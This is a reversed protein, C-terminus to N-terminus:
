KAGGNAKIQLILGKVARLLRVAVAKPIEDFSAISRADPINGTEDGWKVLDDFTMGDKALMDSLKQQPTATDEPPTPAASAAPADAAASGPGRTENAGKDPPASNQRTPQELGPVEDEDEAEQQRRYDSWKADGDKLATYIARLDALERPTTQELPHGLYAELETPPVGLGGFSDTIKKVQARPDGGGKAKTERIAAEAEELIDQPILRLGSNRIVKSKAANLKVALEEDTCRVIFVKNGESTERSGIVEQGERVKRREITKALMVEDAYSLNSELDTVTIRVLRNDADEWATVVSVDVNRWSNLAQEAFRISLGEIFNDQWRGNVEKSGRKVRYMAGEAFAPRRCADLISARANLVSRPRQLAIVFKAEITAKALAASAGAAIEQSTQRPLVALSTPQNM